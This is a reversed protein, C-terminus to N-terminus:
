VKASSDTQRQQAHASAASLLVAFVAFWWTRMLKAMIDRHFEKASAGACAPSYAAPDAGSSSLVRRGRELGRDLSSRCRHRRSCFPRRDLYAYLDNQANVSAHVMFPSHAVVDGATFDTWLWRKGTRDALGRLDHTLPRADHERDTPLGRRLADFDLTTSDALYILGGASLPSDGIPIWFTVIEASGADLYSYDIHARSAAKSGSLFHRLPTRRLRVASGGLLIEALGQLREAAVFSRFRDGRVFAWAPHGPTGHPPLDLPYNGSFRRGLSDTGTKFLNDPFRGLYAARLDLVATRDLANRLLIYGRKDFSERM